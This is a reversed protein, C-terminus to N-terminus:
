TPCLASILRALHHLQILSLSAAIATMLWIAGIVGRGVCPRVPHLLAEVRGAVGLSAFGLALAPASEYLAVKALTHAVLERDACRAAASEDAWRELAFHLRRTIPQLFPLAASILRACLLYRDHRHHAHAQEHAVVVALERDDVLNLLGTSLVIQGGRGPITAAFPESSEVYAISGPIDIRLRRDLRFVKVARWGGVVSIVLAPLALLMPLDKHFGFAMACWRFGVGVLPLHALYSAGIVWLSPLAAFAIVILSAAVVRAALMPPLRRHLSTALLIVLAAAVVPLFLAFLSM